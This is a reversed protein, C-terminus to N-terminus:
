SLGLDAAWHAFQPASRPPVWASAVAGSDAGPPVVATAPQASVGGVAGTAVPGVSTKVAEVV